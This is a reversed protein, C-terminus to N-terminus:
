TESIAYNGEVVVTIGSGGSSSTIYIIYDAYKAPNTARFVDKGTNCIKEVETYLANGALTRNLTAQPRNAKAVRVLDRKDDFDKIADDFSDAFTTDWGEPLLDAAHDVAERQIQKAKHVLEKDDASIMGEFAFRKYTGSGEGFINQAMTRVNGIKDTLIDYAAQRIQVAETIAGQMQTDTPMAQFTTKTLGLTTLRAATVGRPILQAADRTAFLIIEDILQILEADTLNNNRDPMQEEMRKSKSPLISYAKLTVLDKVCIIKWGPGAELKLIALYIPYNRMLRNIYSKIGSYSPPLNSPFVDMEDGPKLALLKMTLLSANKILPLAGSPIVPTSSM